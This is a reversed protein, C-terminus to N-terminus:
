LKNKWDMNWIRMLFLLYPYETIGEGVVGEKDEDFFNFDLGRLGIGDHCKGEWVVHDDVVEWIVKERDYGVVEVSNGGKVLAGKENMYVYWRKAHIFVKM